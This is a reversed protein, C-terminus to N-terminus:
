PGLTPSTGLTVSSVSAARYHHAIPAAPPTTDPAYNTIGEQGSAFSAYVAKHAGDIANFFSLDSVGTRAPSGGSDLWPNISHTCLGTALACRAIGTSRSATDPTGISFTMLYTNTISDYIVSPKGLFTESSFKPVLIPYGWYGAFGNADRANDGDTRLIMAYIASDENVTPGGFVAYLLASGTPGIFISPDSAGHLGDLGCSYPRSEPVYPGQPLTSTARGICVPHTSDPANLRKASFFMVYTSGFKAITPSSIADDLAWAPRTPMADRLHSSWAVPNGYVTALNTVGDHMPVHMTSNSSGLVFYWFGDNIIFPDRVVPWEPQRPSQTTISGLSPPPACAAALVAVCALALVILSKRNATPASRRKM